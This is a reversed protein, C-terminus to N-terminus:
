HLRFFELVKTPYKSLLMFANTYIGNDKCAKYIEQNLKITSKLGSTSVGGIQMAVFIECMKVVDVKHKAMLRCLFEYDGAIKYGVDFYGCDDYIAKKLFMAPHAPMKGWSLNRLSLKPSNYYRVRDKVNGNKFFITDGYVLDCKEDIFASAIRSIVNNNMFVDDSHLFAIIDGTAIKIGKNLADYIGDDRESILNTVRNGFKDVIKLTQDTSKGDVIIHEIDQYSQSNVSNLTKKITKESNRTATIISFKM